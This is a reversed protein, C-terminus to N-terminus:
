KYSRQSLKVNKFVLEEKNLKAASEKGTYEWASVYSFEEDNRKAEGEETRSEERFHGGCSESRELADRAMLEGLELFDAVRGAQELNKNLDGVTLPINVNNWFEDRLKPIEELAKKLGEENRAMGVCDWMIKGLERHIERPTKNGNISLLKSVRKNVGVESEKFESQNIDVPPLDTQALYHGLTHLYLM